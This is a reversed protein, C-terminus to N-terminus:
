NNKGMNRKRSTSSANRNCLNINFAFMHPLVFLGINLLWFINRSHERAPVHFEPETRPHLSAGIHSFQGQAAAGAVILTWDGLWTQGPRLLGYIACVYFPVFYYMYVLMQIKPYAIPHMIYPEHDYLYEQMLAETCGLAIFGRFLDVAVAGLLYVIFVCDLPRNWINANSSVTIARSDNQRQQLLKFAIWVPIALYILNLYIAPKVGFKGCVSGLLLVIVSNTISGCWYLGVKRYSWGRHVCYLIWICLGYHVTGDWYNIMTGYPTWLYPEGDKLYFGMFESLIGDAEFAIILDIMSSFMFLSMFYLIFDPKRVRRVVSYTAGLVLILVAIGVGLIVTPDKVWSQTNLVYSLPFPLLSVSFVALPANPAM